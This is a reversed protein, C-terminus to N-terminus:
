RELRIQNILTYKAYGNLEKKPKKIENRRLFNYMLLADSNNSNLIIAAEEVISKRTIESVPELSNLYNYFDYTNTKSLTNIGKADTTKIKTSLLQRNQADMKKIEETVQGNALLWLRYTTKVAGNICEFDRQKITAGSLADTEYFSSEVQRETLDQLKLFRFDSSTDLLINHLKVYEKDSFEKHNLKTLRENEALEFKFFNGNSDWYMKLNMIECKDGVCPTMRINRFYLLPHNEEDNIRFLTYSASDNEVDIRVTDYHGDAVKNEFNNLNVKEGDVTFFFSVLSLFNFLLIQM